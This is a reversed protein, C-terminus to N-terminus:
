IEGIIPTGRAGHWFRVIDVRCDACDVRYIVRYSRIIIERIEDRGFEPVPRGLEPFEALRKVNGTLFQGFAVAREPSDLSIYRVIDRLDRRGAPSLAVRYGM